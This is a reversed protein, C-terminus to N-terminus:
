PGEAGICPEDGSTTKITGVTQDDGNAHCFLNTTLPGPFNSVMSNQEFYGLNFTVSNSNTFMSTMDTVNSTDWSSLDIVSNTQLNNFANKLSIVNSVDWYELGLLEDIESRSFISTMANNQNVKSVDLDSVDLLSAKLRHFADNLNLDTVTNLGVWGSFSVESVLAYHLFEYLTLSQSNGTFDWGSIDISTLEDFEVTSNFNEDFAEIYESEEERVSYNYEYFLGEMLTVKPFRLSSLDLSDIVSTGEFAYSFELLNDFELFSLKVNRFVSHVFMRYAYKVNALNHMSFDVNTDVCKSGNSIGYIKCSQQFMHSMDVVNSLDSFNAEFKLLDTYEFSQNLNFWASDGLEVVDSITTSFYAQANLTYAPDLNYNEDFYYPSLFGINGKIKVTAYYIGSSDVEMQGLNGSYDHIFDAISSSNDFHNCSGDGWSVYVDFQDAGALKLDDLISSYDAVSDNYTGVDTHTILKTSVNEDSDGNWYWKVFPLLIKYDLDIGSYSSANDAGLVRFKLVTSSEDFDVSTGDCNVGTEIYDPVCEILEDFKGDDGCTVSSVNPSSGEPCVGTLSVVDDEEGTVDAIHKLGLFLSDECQAAEGGDNENISNDGDDTSTTSTQNASGDSQQTFDVRSCGTFILIFLCSFVFSIKKWSSNMM